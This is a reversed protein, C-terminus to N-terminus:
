LIMLFFIFIAISLAFHAYGLFQLVPSFSTMVTSRMIKIQRTVVFAFGIHLFSTIIFLFSFVNLLLTGDIAAQSLSNLM